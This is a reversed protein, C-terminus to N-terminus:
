EILQYNKNNKKAIKLNYTASITKIAVDLNNGPIKGTFLLDDTKKNYYIVVNYQRQLEEVVEQLSAKEFYIENELWYPKTQVIAKLVIKQYNIISIFQGKSVNEQNNGYVVKVKGEYCNVDLRTKRSKVTFQTGLVSVSGLKTHVTFQQGKAVKFFAEGELKLNRNNNWNWTKFTIQSGANLIVQSSDPLLFTTQEGNNAYQVTQNTTNYILWIGLGFVLIAAFKTFLSLSLGIIKTEKKTDIKEQKSVLINKLLAESDFNSTQLDASYDKIKELLLFDDDLQLAALDEESIKDELWDALVFNEKM